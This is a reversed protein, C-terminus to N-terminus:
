RREIISIPDLKSLTRAITGGTVALVAVPIPLTYLWPTLNFLNFTLGQPAFVGFRLYLLGTMGVIASLGWAIGTTFATEGLVRRVLQRRGYGLAHLVGFESHRQSVFIYNLVALGIAAVVAIVSELLAMGLMDQQAKIQVRSLEQRQTLVSADVGALENELWDDLAGKQGAKPVVMLPLVDPIPFPEYAELFELSVFSWGSGDEPTQPRAFIGSVMFGVPLSPAGPYAPQDPAGIVDGVQIDRNQALAQPIVMENSGPRPLHGRELELGYLEVLYAMDEAYVGFPSAEASTFPPIYVSLMHSRPAVPIVREVTPHAEVRAVVSPYLSQVIGPSRVISVRSLYGLFSKQADAGVALAFIIFVVALIMVSMGSILLVARRRHRKYFTAPALPRPSSLNVRSSKSATRERKQGGEQSLERREVITVPDLRELARRVGLFTFGAIAAPVSLAFVMPLWAIYNLDHGRSAFFTVKLVYLVVWAIGVGLVWGALALTTTELTLRRILWSRSRGTAHLIGFEPLRRANALQNVVVIVFSFAIAVTLVPPVLLVLGPLAENIIRENLKTLTMVETGNTEIESRLFEDVAAERGEEAVVLFRAPFERYQEHDNLFALSVIGLEIDSKLVGVVEFTTPELRTDMHRYFESSLIDYPEGVEVGLITALDQSLLLENTGSELLHGDKLTAAFRDLIYPVDAESLGLLDFQFSQGLMGPIQIRIVTTSIINAVDPNARIQALVVPDPGGEDSRPTVMSFESLAMHTLRAPEVFVGWVLAVMSYLGITVVISLSLLLTAHRKHRHYYTWTSLPNV